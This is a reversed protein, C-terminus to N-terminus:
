VNTCQMTKGAWVANTSPPLGPDRKRWVCVLSAVVAIILVAVVVSLVIAVTTSVTVSM